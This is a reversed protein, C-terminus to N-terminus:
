GPRQMDRIRGLERLLVTAYASPPLAFGLLLDGEIWEWALDQIRMRLARREQKMGAKELGACIDAFEAAAAEELARVAAESRLAGIGWMPGTPHIDQSAARAALQEDLPLPGFVSHSGDLMWVEGEAGSAWNAADVRMALVRNFVASRAASLLISRQERQMRAGAFLRRAQELNDGDRGFRQEGFYNPVGHAAIAHLRADLAATDAGPEFSINRLRLSFRNGALAGRPLKRSHWDARIVSLDAAELQEVPPSVRKPFHVSFRQSTAAHRDKLGAYGIAMPGVGAWEGIRRAAQATTMGRKCVELLLHEGQGSPEFGPLEEVRFDDVHCRIEASLLPAGQACPLSGDASSV